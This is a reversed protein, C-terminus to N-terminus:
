GLYTWNLHSVICDLHSKLCCCDYGETPWKAHEHLRTMAFAQMTPKFSALRDPTMDYGESVSYCFLYAFYNSFVLHELRIDNPLNQMFPGEPMSAAQQCQCTILLWQATWVRLRASLSCGWCTMQTSTWLECNHHAEKDPSWDFRAM